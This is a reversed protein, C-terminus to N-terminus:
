FRAIRYMSKLQREFAAGQKEGRELSKAKKACSRAYNSGPAHAGVVREALVQAAEAVLERKKSDPLFSMTTLVAKAVIQPEGGVVYLLLKEKPTLAPYKGTLGVNLRIKRLVHEGEISM